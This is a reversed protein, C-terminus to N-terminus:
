NENVNAVARAVAELFDVLRPGWRSSIDSNIEFINNNKVAQLESWGPRASITEASQGCCQADAFFILDPDAQLVFEEGLQPYGWSTGDEDAPDAINTLGALSYVKGIFTESTVSYLTDDLEHYYTIPTEPRQIGSLIATIREKMDNVASSAGDTQGTMEGIELMQVWVDELEIAASAVYVDIGLLELEQRIGNDSLIVLDPEFTAIAEVNPNWGSLGDVVPAEPPWYSYEDVALVQPGAGIAFLMETATPSLSVIATPYDISPQVVESEDPEVTEQNQAPMETEVSVTPELTVSNAGLSRPDSDGCAALIMLGCIISIIKKMPNRRDDSPPAAPSRGCLAEEELITTRPM